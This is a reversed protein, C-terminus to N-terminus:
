VSLDYSVKGTFHIGLEGAEILGQHQGVNGMVQLGNIRLFALLIVPTFKTCFAVTNKNTLKSERFRKIKVRVRNAPIHNKEDCSISLQILDRIICRQSELLMPRKFLRKLEQGLFLLPPTVEQQSRDM